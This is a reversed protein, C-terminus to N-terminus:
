KGWRLVLPDLPRLLEMLMGHTDPHLPAIPHRCFASRIVGGEVMAAKASRFGCQRNEHNVAPLVRAYGDFAAQRNGALFDKLADVGMQLYKSADKIIKPGLTGIAKFAATLGDVIGDKLIKLSPGKSSFFDAISQRMNMFLNSIAM